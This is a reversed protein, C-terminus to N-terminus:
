PLHQGTAHICVCELSRFTEKTGCSINLFADASLKLGQGLATTIADLSAERTADQGSQLEAVRAANIDFGIVSHTKTFALALPLGVYGLGIVAIVPNSPLEAPNM